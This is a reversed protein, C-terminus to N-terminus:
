KQAAAVMITEKVWDPLKSSILEVIKYEEQPTDFNITVFNRWVNKSDECLKQRDQTLKTYYNVVEQPPQNNQNGSSSKWVKLWSNVTPGISRDCYVVLGPRIMGWHHQLFLIWPDKVGWAPCVQHQYNMADFWTDISFAQANVIMQIMSHSIWDEYYGSPNLADGSKLIHGMCIGLRTHCLKAVTSTGSRGSGLVLIAPQRHWQM